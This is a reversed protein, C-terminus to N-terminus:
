FVLRQWITAARLVSIIEAYRTFCPYFIPSVDNEFDADYLCNKGFELQGGFQVGGSVPTIPIKVRHVCSNLTLCLLADYQTLLSFHVSLIGLFELSFM